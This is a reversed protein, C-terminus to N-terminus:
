QDQFKLIWANRTFDNQFGTLDGDSSNTSGLLIYSDSNKAFGFIEDNGSGGLITQGLNKGNEDLKVVWADMYGYNAPFGGKASQSNVGIFFGGDSTRIIGQGYDDNSGGFAQQWVKSGDEDLKLVWVDSKGYSGTVDGGNSTSRGTIIYGNSTRVLDRAADSGSGGYIKHWVKNGTGNIKVIWYDTLGGPNGTIDGDTSSSYGVFVYGDNGDSVISFVNDTNSGGYTKEWLLNGNQDVKCIWGDFSGAEDAANTRYGAIAFTGNANAVISRAAENAVGGLAKVWQITGNSSLKFIIADRGGHNNSIDGDKSKCYGVGVYTGDNLQKIATAYDQDSGGILTQWEKNGAANYKVVLADTAGKFGIFDGDGSATYGVAVYGNDMTATGSWYHDSSSGGNVKSWNKTFNLNRTTNDTPHTINKKCSIFPLFLVFISVPLITRM